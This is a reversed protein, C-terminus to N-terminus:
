ISETPITFTEERGDPHTLTWVIQRKETKPSLKAGYGALEYPLKTEIAQMPCAKVCAMCDWCDKPSRIYALNEDNRVMLNGPCVAECRSEAARNCGNCKTHIVNVSM